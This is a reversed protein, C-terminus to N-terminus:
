DECVQKELHRIAREIGERDAASYLQPRFEMESKFYRLYALADLSAATLNEPEGDTWRPETM